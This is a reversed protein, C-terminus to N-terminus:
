KILGYQLYQFQIHYILLVRRRSTQIHLTLNLVDYDVDQM